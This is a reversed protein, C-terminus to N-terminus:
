FVAPEPWRYSLVSSAPFSRINVENDQNGGLVLDHSGMRGVYFGVHGMWRSKGRPLVVIAGLRPRPIELGMRLYSRALPSRSYEYGAERLCWSVLAACWPTEDKTQLRPDLRVTRLYELIKLNHRAGAIEAEGLEGFAVELWKPIRSM